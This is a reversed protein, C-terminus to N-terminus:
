IWSSISSNNIQLHPATTLVGVEWCFSGPTTSPEFGNIQLLFHNVPGSQCPNSLTYFYQHPHHSSSVALSLLVSALHTHFLFPLISFGQESLSLSVFFSSTVSPGESMCPGSRCVLVQGLSFMCDRELYFGLWPKTQKCNPFCNKFLKSKRVLSLLTNGKIPREEIAEAILTGVRSGHLETQICRQVKFLLYWRTCIHPACQLKLYWNSFSM